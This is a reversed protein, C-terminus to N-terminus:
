NYHTVMFSEQLPKELFFDHNKIEITPVDGLKLQMHHDKNYSQM